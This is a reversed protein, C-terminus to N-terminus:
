IGKITNIQQIEQWTMELLTKNYIEGELRERGIAARWDNLTIIGAKFEKECRNSTSAKANEKRQANDQLIAIDDWLADIYYGADYLGLFRNFGDLWSKVEPMVVSNYVNLEATNLNSFTPNDKRPILNSDVGYAGAIAAADLLCEEFPQLAAISMGIPVFSVPVQSIAVPMKDGVVGYTSQFDQLIADKEGSTMSMTGDADKKQNVILGLAGRKVYIANRAEYVAIINSVPYKQADLRSRGMLQGNRTSTFTPMDKTHYMLDAPIIRIMGGDSYRYRVGELNGVVTKNNQELSVALSPLVYFTNCTEWLRGENKDTYAYIYGNGFLLKNIISNMVFERFTMYPNPSQLLGKEVIGAVYRDRMGRVSDAWVITDDSSKRLVFQANAAREAIYKIPFQIEAINHFMFAYNRHCTAPHFCEMFRDAPSIEVRQKQPPSSVVPVPSVDQEAGKKRIKRIDLGFLEM